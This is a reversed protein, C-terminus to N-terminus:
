VVGRDGGLTPHVALVVVLHLGVRHQQWTTGVGRHHPQPGLPALAGHRGGAAAHGGHHVARIAPHGQIRFPTAHRRHGLRGAIQAAHAGLGQRDGVVEIEGRRLGGGTVPLQRHGAASQRLGAQGEIGGDGTAVNREVVFGAQRITAQLRDMGGRHHAHHPKHVIQALHAAQGPALGAIGDPQQPHAQLQLGGILPHAQRAAAVQLHDM